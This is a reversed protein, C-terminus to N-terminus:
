ERFGVAALLAVSAPPAAFYDAPYGGTALPERDPDGSVYMLGCLAMLAISNARYDRYPGTQGFPTISCYIVDPLEEKLDDYGLGLGALHGPPDSEILVDAQALLRKLIIRGSATGIDLSVSKKNTNLHLYLGSKEHDPIDGPFPGLNRSSDATEPPEVKIVEAGASALRKGCYPVRCRTNAQACRTQRSRIERGCWSPHPM